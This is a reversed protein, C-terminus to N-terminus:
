LHPVLLQPGARASAAWNKRIWQGVCLGEAERSQDLTVEDPPSQAGFSKSPWLHM